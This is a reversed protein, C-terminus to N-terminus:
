ILQYLRLASDRQEQRTKDISISQLNECYKQQKLMVVGDTQQIEIGVYNFRDEEERGVLFAERIKPIITQKLSVTGGWIFDDVHSALIGQM